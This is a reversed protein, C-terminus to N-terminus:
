SHFFFVLLSVKLATNPGARDLPTGAHWSGHKPRLFSEGRIAKIGQHRRKMGSGESFVNIYDLYALYDIYALYNYIIV